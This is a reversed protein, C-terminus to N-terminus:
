VVNLGDADFVIEISSAPGTEIVADKRLKMGTYPSVRNGDANMDVKVAGKFNIVAAEYIKDISAYSIAAFGIFFLTTLVFLKKM